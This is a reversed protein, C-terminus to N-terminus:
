GVGPDFVLILVAVDAVFVDLDDGRVVTARVRGAHGLGSETAVPDPEGNAEAAASAAASSWGIRPQGLLEEPSAILASDRPRVNPTPM